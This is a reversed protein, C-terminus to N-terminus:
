KLLRRIIRRAPVIRVSVSLRGKASTAYPRVTKKVTRRWWTLSAVPEDGAAVRCRVTPGGLELELYADWVGSGFGGWRQCAAFRGDPLAGVPTSRERGSRRERWVLRRVTEPAPARDGVMVRGDILLRHGPGWKVGTVGAACPVSVVHGGLDISLNGQVRTFYPVAVRDGIVRVAPAPLEDAREPRLRALRTVGECTIAVYVNWVGPPLDSLDFVGEFEAGRSRVPFSREPGQPPPEGDVGAGRPRLLVSMTYGAEPGLGDLEASGRLALRDGDWSVETLHRRVSSGEIRALRVLRDIDALAALKGREADSLRERVGDTVWQDCLEAVEAAIGRRADDDAALFPEGLHTLADLRIHRRLLHDRLPGPRIHRTVLEMPQRIMRLWRVPDRSGDQQMVSTGCPRDVLHYCDYDAVVSIVGAHCYAHATFVIDEGVRLDEAFRIEHERLMERRFLKFCALSNYVASDGLRARDANARFMSVPARRGHGVIRGLVIDSGNRDAMGVMRELAEPGLYDDADCFFVYRGRAASLGINRARGAGGGEGRLVRLVGPHHAAYLGLLDGSGDASGDDVAVVELAVRQVLLSTLCRDLYPRCDRVPVVVSVDIGATTCATRVPGGSLLPLSEM